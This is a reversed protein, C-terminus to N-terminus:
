CLSICRLHVSSHCPAKKGIDLAAAGAKKAMAKIQDENMSAPVSVTSMLSLPPAPSSTPARRHPKRRLPLHASPLTGM